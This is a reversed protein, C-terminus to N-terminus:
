FELGFGIGVLDSGLDARIFWGPVLRKLVTLGFVVTNKKLDEVRQLEAELDLDPNNADEQGAGPSSAGIIQYGVYPKIYSFFPATITYKARITLNTMKTQLGPNPFDDIVNQGYSFEGWINDELQYAWHINFQTYRQSSGDNDIGEVTGVTASVVNDQKIVRNTKEELSLDDELLTTEDFLDEESKIVGEDALDKKETEKRLKYYSDDGRLIQVDRGERLQKWLALSYIKVIKIGSLGTDTTKAVLARAVLKSNILLSIFDGRDFSSNSNTIVFVRKSQSIKEIKEIALDQGGATASSSGLQDVVSQAFLGSWNSLTFFLISLFVSYKRVM